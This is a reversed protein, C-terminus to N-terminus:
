LVRSFSKYVGPTSYNVKRERVYKKRTTKAEFYFHHACAQSRNRRIFKETASIEIRFGAYTYNLKMILVGLRRSLDINM